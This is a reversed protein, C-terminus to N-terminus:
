FLYASVLLMQGECWQRLTKFTPSRDGHLLIAFPRDRSGSQVATQSPTLNLQALFPDSFRPPLVPM